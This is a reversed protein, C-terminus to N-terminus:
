EEFMTKLEQIMDYARYNELAKQLKPCMIGLMLCEVENHTDLLADYADCVAQSLVHYPLPALPQELHVLKGESRKRILDLLNIGKTRLVTVECIIDLWLSRKSLSSPSNLAGDEGYIAKIFGDMGNFLTRRISELLQLVGSPVKFISMHYLHISTIVSKILTLRGGISLTKLKWKSLRSSVQAVVEDWSKIRSMAGGVKVRLHVFPTTFISYGMTTAATDVEEVFIDDDAFFIYSLTLSSDIPIGLFLGSAFFEKVAVVIYHELLKWYRRFFEFTFGDPDSSKNTGYDWVASKIVENSVNQELDAQQELSLKTNEGDEIAWCVKYKHTAELSDTSNTDNLEKLLLSRDSLIEENSGGNSDVTALSKWTDKVMKDFGDM